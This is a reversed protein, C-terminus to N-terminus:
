FRTAGAAPAKAGKGSAKAPVAEQEEAPKAGAADGADSSGADGLAKAVDSKPAWGVIDFKPVFIKKYKPHIYFDPTLAVIPFEDPRQRMQRGFLKCLEGIANLGSKSGTTFTYLQDSDEAKMVLYNARQWPDRPKNDDDREWQAEDTDGLDNRRAVQFRDVVRGMLQDTPKNDEWRIWGTLLEDMNAILRTGEPLEEEDQGAVFEGFKTFKLIDGVISKQSVANGYDEFANGSGAVAVSTGARDITAVDNM